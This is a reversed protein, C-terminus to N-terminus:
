SAFDGTFSRALCRQASPNLEPTLPNIQSNVSVHSSMFDTRIVVLFGSFQQHGPLRKRFLAHMDKMM